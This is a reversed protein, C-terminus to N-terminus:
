MTSDEQWVAGTEQLQGGAQYLVVGESSALEAPVYLTFPTGEGTEGVPSAEYLHGGLQVYVPSDSDVMGILRGELRTYGELMGDEVSTLQAQAEGQPPIGNLVREPAPFIPAQTAWWELNREVIEILVTDAGTQELLSMTYPMARSFCAEGYADALFTHLLNGFSDRFMLLSGSQGPNETQILQDEASRIPRAYSFSFERDYAADAETKRGTPYVMEYLDGLHPDGQHYAGSFFPEQDTKNLGAILTDHALAAGRVNWHSDTHYYLVEDEEQFPTFLDLYPVGEEALYFVLREVNSEEELPVGVEPLYEPYLSAKNPAVTVYLRAGRDAAYEQLLSLTRAAGFLQQEGLPNTRLHDELTERYFLWDGKGLVVDEESSVHFLATDLVAGATILEQRFAFHDAVYDTVEELVQTNFSGDELFLRPQPSLTQNAAVTEPPLVLMGASPILCAALFATVALRAKTKANM